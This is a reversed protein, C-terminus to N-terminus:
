ANNLPIIGRKLAFRILESQSRLDLKRMLSARHSEATRPSIKLRTGIKTSTLGEAALQLVQRERPTLTEYPDPQRAGPKETVLRDTRESLRPCLYRRGGAVERVAEVIEAAECDKLIYGDVGNRLAQRVSREDSYISLIIVRTELKRHKILRTVELGNLSPMRLDTILVDPKRRAVLDLAELGDSTEGMVVFDPETELVARLGLRFVPHDDAVVITPM